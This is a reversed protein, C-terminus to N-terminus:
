GIAHLVPPGRRRATQANERLSAHARPAVRRRVLAPAVVAAIVAFGVDSRRPKTPQAAALQEGPSRLRELDPRRAPAPEGVRHASGLRTLSGVASRAPALQASHAVTPVVAAFLVLALLATKRGLAGSGLRKTMSRDGYSRDIDRINGVGHRSASKQRVAEQRDATGGAVPESPIERGIRARRGM